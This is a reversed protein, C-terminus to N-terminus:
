DVPEFKPSALPTKPATTAADDLELSEDHESDVPLAASWGRGDASEPDRVLYMVHRVTDHYVQCRFHVRAVDDFDANGYVWPAGDHRRVKFDAVRTAGLQDILEAECLAAAEEDTTAQVASAQMTAAFSLMMGAILHMKTM